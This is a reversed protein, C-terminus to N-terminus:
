RRELLSKDFLNYFYELDCRRKMIYEEYDLRKEKNEEYLVKGNKIAEFQLSIPAFQLFVIDFEHEKLEFRRRLYEKPLVEVFIDYLKSYLDLTDKKHKEPNELVVGIDVDSLSYVYKGQAYSGFLYVALIDMEKLQSTQKKSFKIRMM